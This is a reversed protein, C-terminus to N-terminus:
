RGESSPPVIGKLRMYVAMYGYEENDHTINGVLAGLKSRSGRRTKVVQSATADTLADYAADCISFSEKLAAVLDAKSTKSGAGVAKQEGLVASCTGAQADAVHAVLQGFTRVDPTAKFSYNEEPMKEAMKTLNNKIGHYAQKAENSLTNESQAQLAYVSALAAVLMTVFFRNM